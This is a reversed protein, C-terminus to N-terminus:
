NRPHCSKFKAILQEQNAHTYRETSKIDSHGLLDQIVRLDAGNQLLHSAFSHRLLHPYIKKKLGNERAREQLMKWVSSRHLAKGKKSLFLLKEEKYRAREGLLYHDIAKSAARGLPVIREKSGKGFVKLFGSDLDSIKLSCLESVRLGSAYLLELIAKDRAAFPSNTDVNDLLMAIEEQSLYSPLIKSLKPGQLYLCANEEVLDEKKLFRFFVKLAFFARAVSTEKLGRDKLALLYDFIHSEEVTKFDEVSSQELYLAFSELDRCYSEVTNKALGKEVSIYVHFSAICENLKSNPM